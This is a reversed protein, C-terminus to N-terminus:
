DLSIVLAGPSIEIITFGLERSEDLLGRVTKEGQPIISELPGGSPVDIQDEALCTNIEHVKRRQILRQIGVTWKV